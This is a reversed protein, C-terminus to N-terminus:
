RTAGRDLWAIIKRFHYRRSGGVKIAGPIQGTGTLRALTRESIGPIRALERSSILAPEHSSPHNHVTM